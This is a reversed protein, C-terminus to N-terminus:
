FHVIPTGKSKEKRALHIYCKHCVVIAERKEVRYRNQQAAIYTCYQLRTQLPYYIEFGSTYIGRWPWISNNSHPQSACFGGPKWRFQFPHSQRSVSDKSCNQHAFWHELILPCSSSSDRTCNRQNGIHRSRGGTLVRFQIPTSSNPLIRLSVM